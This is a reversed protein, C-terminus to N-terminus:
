VNIKLYMVSVSKFSLKKKKINKDKKLHKEEKQSEVNTKRKDVCFYNQRYIYYVYINEKKKLIRKRKRLGRHKRKQLM